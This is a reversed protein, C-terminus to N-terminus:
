SLKKQISKYVEIGEDTKLYAAFASYPNEEFPITMLKRNTSTWVFTRQDPSLNIISAEQARIAMNRLIVNEDKALALFLKPDKKCFLLVDRKIEKSSMTTVISGKEVRLIAEALDVDIARAANLAEIELELDILDDQAEIVPKFEKYKHNLAPHYISLLKQLAQYQKPVVLSGDKFMIHSLTVEGKQEDELPSPQNTAYRIARQEGKIPDFWLLPYRRSHRSNLTYTLPKNPGLLYYTRDKVEWEDLVSTSPKKQEAKKVAVPKVAEAVATEEEKQKKSM